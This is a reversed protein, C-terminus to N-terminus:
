ANSFKYSSGYIMAETSVDEVKQVDSPKTWGENLIINLNNLTLIQQSCNNIPCYGVISSAELSGTLYITSRPLTDGTTWLDNQIIGDSPLRPVEQSM